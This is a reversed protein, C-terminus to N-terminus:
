DGIQTRLLLGVTSRQKLPLLDLRLGLWETAAAGLWAAPAAMMSIDNADSTDAVLPIACNANATGDAAICRPSGWRRQEDRLFVDDLGHDRALRLFVGDAHFAASLEDLLAAFQTAGSRAVAMGWPMPAFGFKVAFRNAWEPRTLAKTFFRTTMRSSHASTSSWRTWCSSPSLSTQIRIHHRIFIMNALAGSPLCVTRGVLDGWDHVTSDRAGVVVSQSAYYHPRVFRVEGDRQVNHSMTAIVLDIDGYSVLPIRTKTDVAVPVLRVGPFDAIRRAIDVEFGSFTNSEDGVSFGPYYSRLGVRLQKACLISVLAESARTCDTASTHAQDLIQQVALMARSEGARAPSLLAFLLIMASLIRIM